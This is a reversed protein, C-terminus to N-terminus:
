TSKTKNNPKRERIKVFSEYALYVIFASHGGAFIQNEPLLCSVMTFMFIITPEVLSLKYLYSDSTKKISWNNTYFIFFNYFIKIIMFYLLAYLFNYDINNGLFNLFTVNKDYRFYIATILMNCLLFYIIDTICSILYLLFYLLYYFIYIFIIIPTFLIYITNIFNNVFPILMELSVWNLKKYNPTCLLFLYSTYLIILSVCLINLYIRIYYYDSNQLQSLSFYLTAIVLIMNIVFLVINKKGINMSAGTYKEKLALYIHLTLFILVLISYYKLPIISLKFTNNYLFISTILTILFYLIDYTNLKKMQEM